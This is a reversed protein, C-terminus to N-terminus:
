TFFINSLKVLWLQVVSRKGGGTVGTITQVAGGEGQGWGDGDVEEPVDEVRDPLYHLM